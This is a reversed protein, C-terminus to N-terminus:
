NSPAERFANVTSGYAMIYKFIKQKEHVTPMLAGHLGSFLQFKSALQRMLAVSQTVQVISDM